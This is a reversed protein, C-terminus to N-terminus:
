RRRGPRALLALSGLLLADGPYLAQAFDSGAGIGLVRARAVQLDVYRRTRMQSAHAEMSSKWAIFVEPSSIDVLLPPVGPPECGPGVAYYLLTGSTHPKAGRLEPVGGFRALRVADRVIRGLRWHDPHQNEELTPALVFEPRVRRIVAALRLAHAAKVELRADGDLRVFELTAGLVSAARKAEAARVAPTGNTGSEGRSCVVLHAPRGCLVENAVIGGCGFEIDDPHAGFALLPARDPPHRVTPKM